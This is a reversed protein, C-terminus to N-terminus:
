VTVTFESFTASLLCWGVQKTQRSILKASGAVVFFLTQLIQVDANQPFSKGLLMGEILSVGNNGGIVFVKPLKLM